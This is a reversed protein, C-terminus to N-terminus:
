VHSVSSSSPAPRSAQGTRRPPPSLSIVEKGLWTHCMVIDAICKMGATEFSLDPTKGELLPEFVPRLQLKRFLEHAVLEHITVEIQSADGKRIGDAVDRQKEVRIHSFATQLFARTDVAAASATAVLWTIWQSRQAAANFAEALM